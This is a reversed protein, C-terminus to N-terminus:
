WFEEINFAARQKKTMINFGFDIEGITIVSIHLRVVTPLQQIHQLIKSNKAPNYWDSWINTDLLYDRM